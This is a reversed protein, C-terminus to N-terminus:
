DNKQSLNETLKAANILDPIVVYEDVTHMENTAMGVVICDIGHSLMINADTGGGSPKINPELGLTKLTNFVSKVIKTEENIRYMKFMTETDYEISSKEYREQFKSITSNLQLKLLEVTETNQSRFEGSIKSNVPVANRVTGGSILGINFTTEEDLRGEPLESILETAIKIASLGKEPEVGAHAGIGTIEIDFKMYTPSIGTITNVPGNGDFVVAEESNIKSYDLNKAGLLGPEEDRTIIIELPRNKQNNEISSEVGELIAAIGAKCDGGLITTGDSKIIDGEVKPNINRGPEVTDMHASLMLPNNGEEKAIINGYDDNDVEFGLQTLKESLYEAIKDERGSPSDIKVLDCFSKVLRKRKIM